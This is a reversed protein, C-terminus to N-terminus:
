PSAGALAAAFGPTGLEALFGALFMKAFAYLLEPTGIRLQGSQIAAMFQPGTLATLDRDPTREPDGAFHRFLACAFFLRTLQRMLVLRARTPADPERGLWGRLLGEQLEPTGALEHTVVAPDTLPDNQCATEWDVLWLRSGDFLLNRPNPDNHSSVRPGDQWPYAARIRAFGEAHPDLLGAAFVGSGRLFRLMRDIVEVYSIEPAPFITADQLRRVLVGLDRVLAPAGGSYESLPRQTVFEMLAVGREADVFRLPPAIGAEAAAQMCAYHAPNQRANLGAEIRLLYADSGADVRYTLASAGGTARRLGTVRGRGLATDLVSKALERQAEPVPELPHEAPM